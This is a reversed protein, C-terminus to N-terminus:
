QDNRRREAESQLICFLLSYGSVKVIIQNEVMKTDEM